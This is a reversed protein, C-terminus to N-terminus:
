DNHFYCGKLKQEQDMQSNLKNIRPRYNDPDRRLTINLQNLFTNMGTLLSEPQSATTYVSPTGSFVIVCDALYTAMIFDHEVVFATKKAHYIFRKILKAVIIREESDLYASPEDILYIHAPKGLCLTLAVRQLEGGSLTKLHHDLLSEIRLPKVVDSQFQPHQWSTGLKNFLLQRVNCEMSPKIMQPKMSVKLEPMDVGGDPKLHGSLLKILTTKGTGNEGLLVIIESDTFSGQNINLIFDGLTKTMHPYKFVSHKRIDEKDINDTMNFHISEDRFRLNETPLYGSLFINIGERVNFPMSVVGYASEFGYLMCITDSLYDLVSLDHEVV